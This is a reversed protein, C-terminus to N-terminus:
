SIGGSVYESSLASIYLSIHHQSDSFRYMPALYQQRTNLDAELYCLEVKDASFAPLVVVGPDGHLIGEALYWGRSTGQAWAAAASRLTYSSGGGLPRHTASVLVEGEPSFVVSIGSGYVSLGGLRRHFAVSFMGEVPAPVVEVQQGSDAPLLGHDALLKRASAVASNADSPRDLSPAFSFGGTGPMYVLGSESWEYMSTAGFQHEAPSGAIGLKAALRAPAPMSGVEVRYVPATTSAADLSTGLTYQKVQLPYVQSADNIAGFRATGTLRTDDAPFFGPVGASLTVAPLANQEQRDTSATQPLSCAALPVLMTSTFLAAGLRHAGYRGFLDQIKEIRTM